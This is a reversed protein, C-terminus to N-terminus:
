LRGRRELLVQGTKRSDPVRRKPLIKHGAYQQHAGRPQHQTDGQGCVGPRVSPVANRRAGEHPIAGRGRADPHAGREPVDNHRLHVRDRGHGGRARHFWRALLKLHRHVRDNLVDREIGEHRAHLGPRPGETSLVQSAHGPALTRSSKIKKRAIWLVGMAIFPVAPLLGYDVVQASPPITVAIDASASNNYADYVTLRIVTSSGIEFYCRAGRWDVSGDAGLDWEYYAIGSPDSCNSADLSLPGAKEMEVALPVGVIMPVSLDLQWDDEFATAFFDAVEGSEIILAAERNRAFPGVGWNISSVVAVDDVVVGKNHILGFEHYPTSFRVEIDSGPEAMATIYDKAQDNDGGEVTSYYGSDLLVRVAVGRAAADLLDRVLGDATLMNPDLYLLEVLVRTTANQVLSRMPALSTEPSFLVSVEATVAPPIDDTPEDGEGPRTPFADSPVYKSIDLRELSFDREFVTLCEEALSADEIVAGWGRNSDLSTRMWNESTLAVRRSDIVAYKCHVFDYGRYGDFSKIMRVDCGSAYLSDLLSIETEPIGGVPQGEVLVRVEVGRYRADILEHGIATDGIEYIAVSIRFQAHRFERILRDRMQEPCLFPEVFADGEFPGFAERRPVSITWDVSTNTDPETRVLMAGAEPRAVSAGKWGPGSPQLAGYFLRDAISGNPRLLTIEDGDDALAFRGKRTLERSTFEISDVGPVLREQISNNSCLVLTAGPDMSRKTFTLWGEGDTLTWGALAVSQSGYNKIAVSESAFNPVAACILLDGQGATMESGALVGSQGGAAMALPSSLAGFVGPLFVALALLCHAGRM